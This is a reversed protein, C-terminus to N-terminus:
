VYEVKVESYLSGRSMNSRKIQNLKKETIVKEKVNLVYLM